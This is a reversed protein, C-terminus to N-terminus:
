GMMGFFELDKACNWGRGVWCELFLLWHLRWSGGLSFRAWGAGAAEAEEGGWYESWWGGDVIWVAIQGAGEVM